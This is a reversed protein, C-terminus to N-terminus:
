EALSFRIEGRHGRAFDAAAIRKGGDTQVESLALAGQGCGILVQQGLVQGQGPPLTAEAVVDVPPFIKVRMGQELLAFTGPWPHYARIRRELEDAPRSWDLRGDERNLKGVYSVASEDQPLRSARGQRLLEMADALALPALQALADHLSEATEQPRIAMPRQWIVDGADLARVMYMVTIGTEADGQDLAAQICSAGRYKPLLSAHINICGLPPIDLFRQNLVQGYAMVVILDPKLASVADIASKRRLSEPQMVPIGAAIARLKIAPPTMQMRRGAPKDPQTVLALIQCSSNVLWEWTPLAIDGTAVVVVRM